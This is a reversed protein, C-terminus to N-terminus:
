KKRLIYNILVIMGSKVASRMPRFNQIMIRINEDNQKEEGNSPVLGDEQVKRGGQKMQISDEQVKRGGQKMQISDAAPSVMANSRQNQSHCQVIGHTRPQPTTFLSTSKSAISSNGNCGGRLKNPIKRWISKPSFSSIQCCSQLSNALM